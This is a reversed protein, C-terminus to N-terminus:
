TGFFPTMIQLFSTRNIEDLLLNVMMILRLIVRVMVPRSPLCTSRRNTVRHLVRTNFRVNSPPDVVIRPTLVEMQLKFVRHLITNGNECPRLDLVLQTFSIKTVTVLQPGVIVM